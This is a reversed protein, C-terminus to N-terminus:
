AISREPIHVLATGWSVPRFGISQAILLSGDVEVADGVAMSREGLTRGDPLRYVGPKWSDEVNQCHRWAREAAAEYTEGEDTDVDLEAVLAYHQEPIVVARSPELERTYRADIAGPTIFYVRCRAM